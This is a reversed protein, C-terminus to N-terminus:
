LALNMGDHAGQGGGAEQRVASVTDVASHERSPLGHACHGRRDLPTVHHIPPPSRVPAARHLAATAVLPIWGLFCGALVQAVRQLEQALQVESALGREVGGDRPQLV